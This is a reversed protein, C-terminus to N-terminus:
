PDGEESDDEVVEYDADQIELKGGDRVLKTDEGLLIKGVREFEERDMELLMEMLDDQDAERTVRMRQEPTGEAYALLTEAAARREKALHAINRNHRNIEKLRSEDEPDTLNALDDGWIHRPDIIDLARGLELQSKLEETADPALAAIEEMVEKAHDAQLERILKLAHRVDQRSFVKYPKTNESYGALRCSKAKNGYGPSGRQTYLRVAAAQKPSLDLIAEKVKDPLHEAFATAPEPLNDSEEGM